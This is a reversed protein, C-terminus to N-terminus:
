ALYALPLCAASRTLSGTSLAHAQAADCTFVTARCYLPVCILYVYTGRNHYGAPKISPCHTSRRCMDLCAHMLLM